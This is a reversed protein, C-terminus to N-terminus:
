DYFFNRRNFFSFTLHRSISLIKLCRVSFYSRSFILNRNGNCRNKCNGNCRRRQVRCFPLSVNWTGIAHRRANDPERRRCSLRCYLKGVFASHYSRHGPLDHTGMHKDSRITDFSDDGDRRRRDTGDDDRAIGNISRSGSLKTDTRHLGALQEHERRHFCQFDLHSQESRSNGLKSCTSGKHYDLDSCPLQVDVTSRSTEPRKSQNSDRAGARLATRELSFLCAHRCFNRKGISVDLTRNCTGNRRVGEAHAFPSFFTFMSRPNEVFKFKSIGIVFSEAEVHSPHLSMGLGLSTALCLFLFTRLM